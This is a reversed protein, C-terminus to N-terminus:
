RYRSRTAYSMWVGAVGLLVAAGVYGVGTLIASQRAVTRRVTDYRVDPRFTVLTYLPLWGRPENEAYLETSLLMTLYSLSRYQPSSLTYLLNDLAKRALYIPTTVLHRMEVYNAMALETIALLDKHREQSYRSLARMLREDERDVTRESVTSMVSEQSLLVDLIRVDELGCNLGQGYFPVMSHAADGLLIARDKYHYPNSKTCILPSRPNHTFDNILNKEGIAQLADPFNSKFWNLFINQTNLRDLEESPAFLTCTFTHDQNPLAIFMYSRRPWIHLHSPDLAFNLHGEHDQSAPMKFEIYEHKIYEQQYDMRVVRMLQRRVVSHSGDAGVCFDFSATTNRSTNMNEFTINKSEFDVAQVKHRFFVRINESASVQDVFHENLLARDISNICQGDRDYLQSYLKGDLHHIMRGKMPIATQMFRQAMSGDIAHMAAIGRHSIALNISRQKATSKFLSSRPDLASRGEYLSVEWGRKALMLAALCGVPGAGIVAARRKRSINPSSM